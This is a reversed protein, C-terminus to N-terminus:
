LSVERHPFYLALAADPLVFAEGRGEYIAEVHALMGQKISAPVSAANGYGATYIIEIRYGTIAQSICLQTRSANLAYLEEDVTASVDDEDVVSMSAVSTVPGMPLRVHMPLTCAYILKWQRSVLTRKLYHEAAQRAAVIMQTIAADEEDHDVRLYLKAEALTLPEEAPLSAETLLREQYEEKM